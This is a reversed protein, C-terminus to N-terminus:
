SVALPNSLRSDRAAGQLGQRTRFLFVLKSGVAPAGPLSFGALGTRLIREFARAPSFLRIKFLVPNNNKQLENIQTKPLIRAEWSSTRAHAPTHCSPSLLEPHSARIGPTLCGFAGSGSDTVQHFAPDCSYINVFGPVCPVRSAWRTAQTAEQRCPLAPRSPGWPCLEM